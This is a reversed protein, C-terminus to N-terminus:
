VKGMAWRDRVDIPADDGKTQSAARPRFRRYRRALESLAGRAAVRRSLQKNAPQLNENKM